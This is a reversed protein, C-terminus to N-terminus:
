EMIFKKDIFTNLIYQLESRKFDVGGRVSIGHAAAMEDTYKSYPIVGVMDALDGTGSYTYQTVVPILGTNEEEIMVQGDKVTLTVKALGGLMSGIYNQSSILNGLSYYCLAKNGNDGQIWEVSQLYHSHTGIILDAGAETMQKAFQEQIDSPVYEYEIGWCPFVVVFDAAEDALQIQSLVNSSLITDSVEGTVDNVAGLFNVMYTEGPLLNTNLGYTYNLMAIKVGNVTIITYDLDEQQKKIGLVSINEAREKWIDICNKMADTGMSNVRNSAMLAVDFGAKKAADCVEEPANFDPYGSVGFENGGIVCAQNLVAIDASDLYQQIGAFIYDFNYTGDAQKGSQIVSDHMFNEGTALLTVKTGETLVMEGGSNNQNDTSGTDGTTQETNQEAIQGSQGGDQSNTPNEGTNRIEKIQWAIVLVVAILCVILTKKISKM